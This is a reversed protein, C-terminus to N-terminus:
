KPPVVHPTLLILVGRRETQHERILGGLVVAQGSKASVTTQLMTTGVEPSRIIEGDGSTAVPAGEETPGLNSQEVDIEMTVLGDVNIRSTVGVTLGVNEMTVTNTMGERGVNTGTIRPKRQAINIRAPQNELATVLPRALVRIQGHSKLEALAADIGEETAKKLLAAAAEDDGEELSVEAVLAEISVMAPQRDLSEILEGVQEVEDAAASIILSNTIVEPVIVVGAAGRRFRLLEGELFNNVTEALDAAPVHKVRYLLRKPAPLKAAGLRGLGPVPPAEPPSPLWLKDSSGDQKKPQEAPADQAARVDAAVWLVLASMLLIRSM